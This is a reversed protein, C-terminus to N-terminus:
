KDTAQLRGFLKGNNSAASLPIEVTVNQYNSNPIPTVTFVVGNIPGAPTSDPVAAAHWSDVMGLDNSYQVSLAATGRAGARLCQFSMVLKGGVNTALPLRSRSNGMPTGNLLWALGNAVGDHNPDDSFGTQPAGMIWSEFPSRVTPDSIVRFGVDSYTNNFGDDWKKGVVRDDVGNLNGGDGSGNDQIWESVCPGPAYHIYALAANWEAETPLFFKSGPVRNWSVLETHAQNFTYAAPWGSSTNLWNIFDVLDVGNIQCATDTLALGPNNPFAYGKTALYFKNFQDNLIQTDGANYVVTVPNFTLSFQNADTGFTVIEPPPWANMTIAKSTGRGGGGTATITVVEVVDDKMNITFTGNALTKTNDGSTGDANSDFQAHGTSSAMTVLTLNDATMTNGSANKATVTISFTSGALQPSSVAVDFHDLSGAPPVARIVRFGTDSFKNTFVGNWKKNAVGDNVGDMVTGVGTGAQIWEFACPGPAYHNLTYGANWEAEKPLFFRAGSARNWNVLATHSANFTYAPPLGLRTNLWNIFDVVEIGSVQCVTDTLARGVNIAYASGTTAQYFKNFQDNLVETDGMEYAATSPNFTMSFQSTGTGFTETTAPAGGALGLALLAILAVTPRAREGAMPYTHTQM